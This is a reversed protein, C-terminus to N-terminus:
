GVRHRLAREATLAARLLRRPAPRQNTAANGIHVRRKRAFGRAGRRLRTSM